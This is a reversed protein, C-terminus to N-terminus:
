CDKVRLLWMYLISITKDFSLCVGDYVLEECDQCQFVITKVLLVHPCELKLSLWQSPDFLEWQMHWLQLTFIKTTFTPVPLTGCIYIYM